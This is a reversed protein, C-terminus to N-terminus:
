ETVVFPSIKEILLKELGTIEITWYPTYTENILYGDMTTDALFSARHGDISLAGSQVVELDDNKVEYSGAAITFEESPDRRMVEIALERKAGKIFKRM